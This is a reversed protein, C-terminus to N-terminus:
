MLKFRESGGFISSSCKYTHTSLKTLVMWTSQNIVGDRELNYEAQFQRVAVETGVGFIGDM